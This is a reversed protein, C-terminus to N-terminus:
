KKPSDLIKVDDGPNEPMELWFWNLAVDGNKTEGVAAYFLNEGVKWGQGNNNFKHISTNAYVGPVHDEYDWVVYNAYTSEKDYGGGIVNVTETTTYYNAAQSNPVNHIILTNKEAFIRYEFAVAVWPTTAAAETTFGFEAEKSAVLGSEASPITQVYIIYSTSATLGALTVFPDEFTKDADGNLNKSPDDKAVIRYKYAAGDVVSWTVCVGADTVASTRFVPAEARPIVGTKFTVKAEESDLYNTEPAAIATVAFVYETDEKLDTFTKSVEAFAADEALVVDPTASEYLKWSYNVANEVNAWSVTCEVTTAEVSAEPVPTQLQVKEAEKDCGAVVLVVAAIAAQVFLNSRM